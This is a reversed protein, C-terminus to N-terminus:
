VESRLKERVDRVVPDDTSIRYLTLVLDFLTVFYRKEQTFDGYVRRYLLPPFATREEGELLLPIVSAKHAETGTLRVNILDVEAAVVSGYQSLKNVYKERYAPTGVVLVFDFNDEEIRSVFRTVSSGLAANNYQDLVADIDANRLDDTLKRVWREHVPNGWAYSVFCMVKTDNRGRVYGKVRVLAAEYTTRMNSVTQEHAVAERDQTSLALRETAKPLSMREADDECFLWQKGEQIRRIVTRREQQHGCTPCFVAPYKRVTVDRKYLIEEFLGQFRMRVYDPTDKGYYLVLEIEKPDDNTLKFGCIYHEATEYQAQKRWQNIRQFSPSYGLLVVLAPYVNEVQGEVIYTLDEIQQADGLFQPPQEQILSPFILFTQNDVSERFCVNRLLFLETVANLLTDREDSSLGQVEPFRYENRLARVEDLSGLGRENSQAKLMYSAALNILLDPALLISVDESSRRLMTVYGHNQLHGVATMMEADTFQWTSDTAALPARLQSRNVLVDKHDTNAKLALVFDKIRKFTETTVTMAKANWDIQQKILKVLDAIGDGTKASTIIFGGSINRHHCFAELETSSHVLKSVDTRAVVLITRCLQQRHSLQKLWYEVSIFTDPRSPDFLILALDIDDLFLAHIPRFNPQGAFDWLVAECQTGDARTQSLDDIV